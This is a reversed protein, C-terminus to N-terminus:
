RKNYENKYWLAADFTKKEDGWVSVRRADIDYILNAQLRNFSDILEFVTLEWVNIFNISPHMNSVASIINPLILDNNHQTLKKKKAAKRMKEFLKRATENKFKSEEIVEETENICCIQQIISLTQSFTEESIVGCIEHESTIDLSDNIDKNLLVFYGEKFVVPEMFFFNFLELFSELLSEEKLVINYLTIKSQEQESLSNWYKKGEDSKMEQYFYEPTMKLLYEFYYFKEFSMGKTSDAIDKLKPKILTGISLRIPYPSLQTGYDLRM